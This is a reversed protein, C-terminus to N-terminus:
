NVFLVRSMKNESFSILRKDHLLYAVFNTDSCRVTRPLVSVIIPKKIRDINCRTYFFIAASLM